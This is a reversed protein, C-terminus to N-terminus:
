TYGIFLFTRSLNQTLDPCPIFRRGSECCQRQTAERDGTKLTRLVCSDMGTGDTTIGDTAMGDEAMEMDLVAMQVAEWEAAEQESFKCLKV